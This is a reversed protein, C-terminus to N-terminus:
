GKKRGLQCYYGKTEGEKADWLHSLHLESVVTIDKLSYIIGSSYYYYFYLLLNIHKNYFVRTIVYVCLVGDCM